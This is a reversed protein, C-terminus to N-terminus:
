RTLVRAIAAGLGAATGSVMAWLLRPSRILISRRTGRRAILWSSRPTFAIWRVIERRTLHKAAFLLRNRCCSHIYLPSKGEGQTAGVEHVAILDHCVQLSGGAEICRFSLDVDEWYMFYDDDFGGLREWLAASTVLCAGTIWEIGDGPRPRRGPLGTRRDTVGGDFWAGGDPREIRPALLTMPQKRSRQVLAELVPAALTADPNLLLVTDCGADLGARVGANAAAGFGPNDPLAVLQWGEADALDAVATREEPSHYSDAVIVQANLASRHVPALHRRLLQHSGYNVVVVALGDAPPRASDTM